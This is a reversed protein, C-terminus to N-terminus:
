SPPCWLVTDRWLSGRVARDLTPTPTAALSHARAAKECGKRFKTLEAVGSKLYAADRGAHLTAANFPYVRVWEGCRAPWKGDGGDRGDRRSLGSIGKCARSNGSRRGTNPPLVGNSKGREEVKGGKRFSRSSSNSTTSPTGHSRRSAVSRSEERDCHLVRRYHNLHLAATFPSQTHRRALLLLFPTRLPRALPEPVRPPGVLDFLHHLLPKKVIRDVHCDHTLSPSRNVELLWPRLGEDILIDFGYLEFCNHHHPVLGVQTLLTLCVLVWVRQWLLWDSKGCGRLHRRLEGITWKCGEGVRDKEKRYSPGLRNLSTNTLHSYVNDLSGLSYKETGFRVIGETYMYVTLPLFSTVMVYLRIDCKYEGVLLPNGIYRQAVASSAYSLEHLDQFISIGRGQSSSIPKCIWINHPTPPHAETAPPLCLTTCLEMFM